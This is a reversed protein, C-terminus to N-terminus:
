PQYWTQTTAQNGNSDQVQIAWNYTTGNTLSTVTPPNSAGTPDTTTSWPISAAPIQASTFGNSKSNNSPINWINSNNYCCLYFSYVYSSANAPYTWTFTPTLSTSSTGVPSLNTALDSAGVVSSTGNWGTVAGNVTTGTDQSGDSYTVTFDYTDGVNPTGSPITSPYQFQPTGCGQCYNSMDVPDILNPGSTLTVAVPLKNLESVDLNLQYNTSSGSSSTSQTYQTQVQVLSNATPLTIGPVAQTSGSITLNGTVNNRVNTVAGTGIGGSNNQDLIGFVAYNSGGPVDVTFDNAGNVPNAIEMAYIASPSGGSGNSFQLLGLYLPAGTNITISAPITVSSSVSTCTGTCAPTGITVGVFNTTGSCGSSTYNCWGSPHPNATDLTDFSWAQFYYTQGSSFTYGSGALVANNLLWVGIDGSATFTHSGAVNLFQAGGSGGLTQSTSWQVTYQNADEIGNSNTSPNFEILVGQANPIIGSITPNETPTAFTPNTMTVAANTVNASAVTVSSSGSPDTANQLGQGIADMWAQLTYSGPPVGRITFAGGSTLTANTISTGLEGGGCNNGNLALYTQGTQATGGTTYTVTGSVTYGLSVSFNETVNSGSLTVSQTAPYFMSVLGTGTISPTITYTGAPISAFSYNGGSDTTTTQVPSTNISVTITPVSPSGGGCSTNLNVQGSVQSGASNVAITYTNSATNGLHDTVKVNTLTVTGTTTPTGSISLTNGGTNTASLSDSLSFATGNTPVATGNISWTYPSAGGSANIFGTYSQSVTASPLSTPNPTPLTLPAPNSVVISYTYPGVSAGTTTDQVSVGFSVTTASGPTGSITLTGGSTTASLQDSPLGTISWTYNGSGGTANVTGTYSEGTTGPGPISSSPTPLALAGYVTITLPATATNGGSDTVQATFSATGATTPTGSVVGATSLSLGYTSLNSSLATWTYGTGTGGAAGLTQSYASGVDAGPLSTTTVTLSAYITISLTATATHSQSDTVQATFAATGTTTPTGSVLGASNLSLNFAALNNAGSTAWAYGTGSGGSAALTQSYLTNITGSKM